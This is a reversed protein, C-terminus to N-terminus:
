GEPTLMCIDQRHPCAGAMHRSRTTSAKGKVHGTEGCRYCLNLRRACSCAADVDMPVLVNIALAPT